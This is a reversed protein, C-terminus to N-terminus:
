QLPNRVSGFEYVDAVALNKFVWPESIRWYENPNYNPYNAM